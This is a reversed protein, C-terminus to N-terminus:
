HSFTEGSSVYLTSVHFYLVPNQEKKESLLTVTIHLKCSTTICFVSIAPIKWPTTHPANACPTGKRLAAIFISCICEWLLQLGIKDESSSFCLHSIFGESHPSNCKLPLFVPCHKLSNVLKSLNNCSSVTQFLGQFYSTLHSVLLFFFTLSAKFTM